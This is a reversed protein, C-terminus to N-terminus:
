WIRQGSTDNGLGDLAWLANACAMIGYHWDTMAVARGGV